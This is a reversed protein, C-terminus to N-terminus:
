ISVLGFEDAIAAVDVLSRPLAELAAKHAELDEQSDPEARRLSQSALRPRLFVSNRGLEFEAADKPIGPMLLAAESHSRAFEDSFVECLEGLREARARSDAIGPLAEDFSEDSPQLKPPWNVALFYREALASSWHRVPWSGLIGAAMLQAVGRDGRARELSQIAASLDLSGLLREVLAASAAVSLVADAAWAVEDAQATEIMAQAYHYRDAPFRLLTEWILRAIGAKKLQTVAGLAELRVQRDDDDLRLWHPMVDSESDDTSSLLFTANARVTARRDTTAAEWVTRHKSVMEGHDNNVIHLASALSALTLDGDAGLLRDRDVHSQWIQDLARDALDTSMGSPLVRLYRYRDLDFLQRQLEAPASEWIWDLVQALFPRPRVEDDTKIVAVKLLLGVLNHSRLVLSAALAERQTRTPFALGSEGVEKMLGAEVLASRLRTPNVNLQCITALEEESAERVDAFTLAFALRELGTTLASAPWGRKAAERAVLDHSIRVAFDIPRTPMEMGRVLSEGVHAAQMPVAIMESAVDGLHGLADGIREGSVGRRELYTKGWDTSPKLRVIEFGSQALLSEVGIPRSAVIFVHQTWIGAIEAIAQAVAARRRVALEDFGDLLFAFQGTELRELSPRPVQDHFSEAHGAFRAFGATIPEEDDLIAALRDLPAYLAEHASSWSAGLALLLQTKGMGGQGDIVVRRSRALRSGLMRLTEEPTETRDLETEEGGIAIRPALFYPVPSSARRPVVDSTPENKPAIMLAVFHVARHDPTDPYPVPIFFPNASLVQLEEGRSEYESRPLFMLQKNVDRIGNVLWGLAARLHTEAPGLRFGLYVVLHRLWLHRLAGKFVDDENLVETLLGPLVLTDPEHASGHLHVVVVEGESPDRFVDATNPLLPKPIQGTALIAQEISDDYNFTAIVQSSCRALAELTSTSRTPLSRVATAILKRTDERGLEKELQRSLLLLDNAEATAGQSRAREQVATVLAATGAAPSLGAGIFPAVQLRGQRLIELPETPLEEIV